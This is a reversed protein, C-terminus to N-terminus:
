GAEAARKLAQCMSDCNAQVLKKVVAKILPGLLPLNFEYDLVLKMATRNGGLDAFDWTGEYKSFDGKLMRFACHRAADNWDDEETWKVTHNFQRILGTWESVTRSGDREVIRVAEVDPMIEPFREIDRAMAYVRDVPAAIEVESQIVPM